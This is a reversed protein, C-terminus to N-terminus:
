KQEKKYLNAVHALSEKVPIFTYALERQVRTNDYFSRSQASRVINRTLGPRKQTFVSKIIDAVLAINLLLKGAKLKSLPKEFNRQLQHTIEKFSVNESNLIYRQGFKNEDMLKIMCTAVDRVDVYGTIGETYVPLGNYCRTIIQTSSQGWCGAGLIVSPNVVLVQLGEAAGRWAEFESRYKTIAYSSNGSATKWVSFENIYTKNAQVQLTAVSSVHCFKKVGKELCTNIVYATGEANIAYLQKSDKEDFSIMGACHYVETIGTFAEQLSFYDTVDAEYWEIQSFYKDVDNTYYSLIQRTNEIKSQHRYLARVNKNQILLTATLHSGLLGTAGTILIM